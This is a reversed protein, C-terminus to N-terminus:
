VTPSSPTRYISRWRPTATSAEGACVRWLWMEENSLEGYTWRLADGQKVDRTATWMSEGADNTEIRVNPGDEADGDGSLSTPSHNFVDCVPVLCRKREIRGTSAKKVEFTIARSRVMSWAWAFEHEEWFTEAARARM